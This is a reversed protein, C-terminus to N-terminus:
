LARIRKSNEDDDFVISIIRGGRAKVEQANSLIKTYNREETAIVM